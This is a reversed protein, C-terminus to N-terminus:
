LCPQDLVSGGAGAGGAHEQGGSGGGAVILYTTSYTGIGVWATGNYFEMFSTTSNFRTMGTVPTPREGTTGVPLTLAGTAASGVTSAVTVTGNGDIIVSM